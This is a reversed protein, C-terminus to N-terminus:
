QHVRPGSTDKQRMFDAAVTSIQGIDIIEGTALNIACIGLQWFDAGPGEGDIVFAFKGSRVGERLTKLAAENRIQSGAPFGRCRASPSDVQSIDSTKVLASARKNLNSIKEIEKTNPNNLAAKM